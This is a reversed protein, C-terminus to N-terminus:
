GFLNYFESIAKQSPQFKYGLKKYYYYSSFGEENFDSWKRNSNYVWTFFLKVLYKPHKFYHKPINLTFIEYWLWLERCEISFPFTRKLYVTMMFFKCFPIPKIFYDNLIIQPLESLKIVNKYDPNKVALGTILNHITLGYNTHCDNDVFTSESLVKNLKLPHSKYFDLVGAVKVQNEKTIVKRAASAIDQDRHYERDWLDVQHYVGGKYYDYFAKQKKNMDRTFSGMWVLCRTEPWINIDDPLKLKAHYLVLLTKTKGFEMSPMSLLSYLSESKMSFIVELDKCNRLEWVLKDSPGKVIYISGYCLENLGLDSKLDTKHKTSM